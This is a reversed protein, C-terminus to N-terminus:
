NIHWGPTMGGIVNNLMVKSGSTQYNKKPMKSLGQFPSSIAFFHFFYARKFCILEWLIFFFSWSYFLPSQVNKKYIGQPVNICLITDIPCNELSRMFKEGFLPSISIKRNIFFVAAKEPM